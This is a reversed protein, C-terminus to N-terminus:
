ARPVDAIHKRRRCTGRGRAGAAAVAAPPPRRRQRRRQRCHCRRRPGPRRRHGGGRTQTTGASPGRRRPPGRGGRGRWSRPRRRRPTRWVTEGRTGAAAPPLSGTRPAGPLTRASPPAASSTSSARRSASPAARKMALTRTTTTRWDASSSGVSWNIPRINSSTRRESPPPARPAQGRPRQHCDHGVHTCWQTCDGSHSSHTSLRRRRQGEGQQQERGRGTKRVFWSMIRCEMFDKSTSRSLIGRPTNEGAWTARPVATIASSRPTRPAPAGESLGSHALRAPRKTVTMRCAKPWRTGGSRLVGAATCALDSM